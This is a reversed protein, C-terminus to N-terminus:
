LINKNFFNTKIDNANVNEYDKFGKNKNKRSTYLSRGGRKRINKGKKIM